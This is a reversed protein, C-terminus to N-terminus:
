AAGHDPAPLPQSLPAAHTKLATAGFAGWTTGDDTTPRGHTVSVVRLVAGTQKHQWLTGVLSNVPAPPPPASGLVDRLRGFDKGTLVEREGTDLDVTVTAQRADATAGVIVGLAGDLRVRQGARYPNKRVDADGDGPRPREEHALFRPRERPAPTLSGGDALADLADILATRFVAEGANARRKAELRADEIEGLTLALWLGRPNDGRTKEGLLGPLLPHKIGGGCLAELREYVPSGPGAREARAAPAPVKETDTAPEEENGAELHPELSDSLGELSVAGDPAPGDPGLPLDAADDDLGGFLREDAEDWGETLPHEEEAGGWNDVEGGLEGAAPESARAAEPACPDSASEIVVETCPRLSRLPGPKEASPAAPLPASLSFIEWIPSFNEWIPSFNEEPLSFFDAVEQWSVAESPSFNERALPAPRPQGLRTKGAARKAAVRAERMADWTHDTIKVPPLHLKLTDMGRPGGGPIVSLRGAALLGDLLDRARKVTLRADQALRPLDLWCGEGEANSRNAVALQLAYAGGREPSRDIVSQVAAASM